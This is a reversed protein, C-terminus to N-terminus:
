ETHVSRVDNNLDVYGIEREHKGRQWNQVWGDQMRGYIGLLLIKEVWKAPRSGLYKSFIWEEDKTSKLETDPEM